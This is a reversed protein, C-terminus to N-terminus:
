NDRFCEGFLYRLWADGLTVLVRVYDVGRNDGWPVDAWYVVEVLLILM